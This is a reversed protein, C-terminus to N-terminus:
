LAKPLLIMFPTTNPELYTAIRRPSDLPFRM